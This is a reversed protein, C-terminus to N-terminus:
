RGLWQWMPPSDGQGSRPTAPPREGSRPPGDPWWAAGPPRVSVDHDDQLPPSPSSVSRTTGPRARAGEEPRASGASPPARERCSRRHSRPSRGACCRGVPRPPRTASSRARGDSRRGGRRRAPERTTRLGRRRDPRRCRRRRRAACRARSVRGGPWRRRCARASRSASRSRRRALGLLDRGRGSRGADEGGLRHPRAIERLEVHEVLHQLAAVEARDPQGRGLDAPRDLASAGARRSSGSTPPPAASSM